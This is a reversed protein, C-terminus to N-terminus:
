GVAYCVAPFIAGYTLNTGYTFAGYTLFPRLRSAGVVWFGRFEFIVKGGKGVVSVACLVHVGGGGQVPAFSSAPYPCVCLCFQVLCPLLLSVVNAIISSYFLLVAWALCAQAHYSGVRVFFCCSLVFFCCYLVLNFGLLCSVSFYRLPPHPPPPCSTLVLLLVM